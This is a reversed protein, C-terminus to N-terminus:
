NSGISGFVVARDHPHQAIPSNVAHHRAIPRVRGSRVQNLLSIHATMIILMPSTNVDAADHM